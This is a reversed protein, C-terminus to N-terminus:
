VKSAKALAKEIAKDVEARISNRQARLAKGLPERPQLRKTGEEIFRMVFWDSGVYGALDKRMVSSKISRRSKGTLRPTLKKAEKKVSKSTKRLMGIIEARLFSGTKNLQKQIEKVNKIEIEVAVM